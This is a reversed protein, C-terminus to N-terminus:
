WGNRGLDLVSGRESAVLVLPACCRSPRGQVHLSCFMVVVAVLFRM